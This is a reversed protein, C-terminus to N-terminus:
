HKEYGRNSVFNFYFVKLQLYFPRMDSDSNDEGVTQRGFGSSIM